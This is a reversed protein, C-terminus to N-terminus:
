GWDGLDRQLPRDRDLKVHLRYAVRQLALLGRYPESAFRGHIVTSPANQGVVEALIALSLVEGALVRQRLEDVAVLM